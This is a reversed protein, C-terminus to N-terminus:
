HHQWIPPRKQLFAEVGERSDALRLLRQRYLAEAAALERIWAGRLAHRALALIPASLGLWAERIAAAQQELESAAACRALGSQEAEVASINRGTLIWDEARRLGVLRPLLVAAVPPFSGVRIEPFGFIADDAALLADCALALEAGGGLAAGRVIGLVLFDAHAMTRFIANFHELMAAAREPLHDAIEVGASFARCESAAEIQVVRARRRCAALAAAVEGAMVRDFVNLPPRRLILRSWGAEHRLEVHEFSVGGETGTIAGVVQSRRRQARDM